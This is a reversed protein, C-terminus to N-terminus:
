YDNANEDQYSTKILVAKSNAIHEITMAFM